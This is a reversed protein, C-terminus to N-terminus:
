GNDQRGERDNRIAVDLAKELEVVKRTTDRDQRGPTQKVPADRLAEILRRLLRRKQITTQTKM